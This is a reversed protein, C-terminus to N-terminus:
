RRGRRKFPNAVASGFVALLKAAETHSAERLVVDFHPADHTPLVEFGEMRVAGATATAFQSRSWMRERLVLEVTWGAVTGDVSVSAMPSGRYSFERMQRQAHEVLKEATLPGGRILLVTDDAVADSRLHAEIPDLDV